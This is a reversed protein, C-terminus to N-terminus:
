VRADNAISRRRQSNFYARMIASIFITLVVVIIVILLITNINIENDEPSKLDEKNIKIVIQKEEQNMSQGIEYGVWSAMGTQAVKAVFKQM